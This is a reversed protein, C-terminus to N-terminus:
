KSSRHKIWAQQELESVDAILNKLYHEDVPRHNEDLLTGGLEQGFYASAQVLQHVTNMKPDPGPIQAFFLLGPIETDLIETDNFSGPHIMHAINYMPEDGTYTTVLQQLFGEAGIMLKLDEAVELVERGLYPQDEPARLILAVTRVSAPRASKSLNEHNTLSSKEGLISDKIRAFFSKKPSDLVVDVSEVDLENHKRSEKSSAEQKEMMADDNHIEQLLKEDDLYDDSEQDKPLERQSFESFSGDIHPEIRDGDEEDIQKKLVFWYGVCGIIIIVLIITGISGLM